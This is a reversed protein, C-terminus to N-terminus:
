LERLEAPFVPALEPQHEKLWDKFQKPFHELPTKQFMKWADYLRKPMKFSKACHDRGEASSMDRVPRLREIEKDLVPFFDNELCALETELVEHQSRSHSHIAVIVGRLLEDDKMLLDKTRTTGVREPITVIGDRFRARIYYAGTRQREVGIVCLEEYTSRLQQLGDQITVPPLQAYKNTMWLHLYMCWILRFTPHVAALEKLFKVHKEEVSVGFGPVFLAVNLLAAVTTDASGERLLDSVDFFQEVLHCINRASYKQLMRYAAPVSTELVNENLESLMQDLDTRIIIGDVWIKREGCCELCNLGQPENEWLHDDSAPELVQQRKPRNDRRESAVQVRKSGGHGKKKNTRRNSPNPSKDIVKGIIMVKDLFGAKPFEAQYLYQEKCCDNGQDSSLFKVIGHPIPRAKNKFNNPDVVSMAIERDDAFVRLVPSGSSSGCPCLSMCNTDKLVRIWRKNCRKSLHKKGNVTCKPCNDPCGYLRQFIDVPETVEKSGINLGALVLRQGETFGPRNESFLVVFCPTLITHLFWAEKSYCKHMM